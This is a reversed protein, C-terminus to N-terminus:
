GTHSGLIMDWILVFSFIIIFKIKIQILEGRVCHRICNILAYYNSKQYYIVRGM